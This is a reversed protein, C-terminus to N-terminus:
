VDLEHPQEVFFGFFGGDSLYRVDWLDSYQFLLGGLDSKTAYFGGWPPALCCLSAWSSYRWDATAM